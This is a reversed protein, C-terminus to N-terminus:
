ATRRTDASRHRVVSRQTTRLRAAIEASSLGAATLRRVVEAREPPLLHVDDGHMARHVAIEDLIPLRHGRGRNPRAAPDDIAQDDWALPPAWGRNRAYTRTRESPGVSMSLQDYAARVLDATDVNARRRRGAAVAGLFAPQHGTVAAIDAYRHGLALLARLRRVTGIPDVTLPGRRALARREWRRHAARHADAAADEVRWAAVDADTPWAGGSLRRRERWRYVTCYAVGARAAAAEVGHEDAFELAERVLQLDTKPRRTHRGQAGAPRAGCAPRGAPLERATM